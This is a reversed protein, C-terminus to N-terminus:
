VLVIKLIKYGYIEIDWIEYISDFSHSKQIGDFKSFYRNIEKIGNPTERNGIELIEGVCFERSWNDNILKVGKQKIRDAFEKKNFDRIFGFFLDMFENQYYNDGMHIIIDFYYKIKEKYSNRVCSKLYEVSSSVAKREIWDICVPRVYKFRFNNQLFRVKIVRITKEMGDMAIVKKDIMSKVSDDINYVMHIMKSFGVDKFELDYWDVVEAIKTIDELINDFYKKVPPWLIGVYEKSCVNKLRQSVLRIRDCEELTLYGYIEYKGWETKVPKDVIDCLVNWEKHYISLAVRYTGQIIKLREDIEVLPKQIYRYREYEIIREELKKYVIFEDPYIKNLKELISKGDSNEHYFYAIAMYYIVINLGLCRDGNWTNSYIDRANVRERYSLRDKM